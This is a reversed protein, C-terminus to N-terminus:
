VYDVIVMELGAMQAHSPNTSDDLWKIKGYERRGAIVIQANDGIKFDYTSSEKKDSSSRSM